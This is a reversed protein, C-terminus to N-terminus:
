GHGRVGTFWTDPVYLGEFPSITAVWINIPKHNEIM